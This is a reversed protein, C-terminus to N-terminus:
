SEKEVKSENRKPEYKEEWAIIKIDELLRNFIELPTEMAQLYSNWFVEYFIM